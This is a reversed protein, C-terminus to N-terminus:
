SFYTIIKHLPLNQSPIQSTLSPPPQATTSLPALQLFNTTFLFKHDCFLSLMLESRTPNTTIVCLTIYILPDHSTHLEPDELINNRIKLEDIYINSYKGSYIDRLDEIFMKYGFLNNSCINILTKMHIRENAHQVVANIKDCLFTFIESMFKKPDVEEITNGKDDAYYTPFDKINFFHKLEYNSVIEVFKGQHKNVRLKVKFLGFHPALLKEDGHTIPTIPFLEFVIPSSQNMETYCIECQITHKIFLMAFVNDIYMKEKKKNHIINARAKFTEVKTVLQQNEIKKNMLQLLKKELKEKDIVQNIIRAVTKLKKKEQKLLFILNPNQTKCNEIRKIDSLVSNFFKTYKSQELQKLRSKEHRLIKSEDISSIGYPSKLSVGKVNNHLHRTNPKPSKCARYMNELNRRRDNNFEREAQSKKRLKILSDDLSKQKSPKLPTMSDRSREPIHPQFITINDKEPEKEDEVQINEEDINEEDETLFSHTSYRSQTKDPKNKKKLMNKLTTTRRKPRRSEQENEKSFESEGETKHVTKYSTRSNKSEKQLKQDKYKNDSFESDDEEIMRKREESSIILSDTYNDNSQLLDKKEEKFSIKGVHEPGWRTNSKRRKSTQNSSTGDSIQKFEKTKQQGWSIRRKHKMNEERSPTNPKLIGKLSREEDSDEAIDYNQDKYKDAM